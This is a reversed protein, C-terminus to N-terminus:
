GRGINTSGRMFRITWALRNQLQTIERDLQDIWSNKAKLFRDNGSIKFDSDQLINEIDLLVDRQEEAWAKVLLRALIEKIENVVLGDGKKTLPNLKTFDDNFEGVYYQEFTYQQGEPLIDPFTVVYYIIEKPKEVIQHENKDKPVEVLKDDNDNNDKDDKEIKDEPVEVLGGGFLIKDVVEENNEDDKEIIKIKKELKGQVTLQGETFMYLCKDKDLIEFDEDLIFSNTKGDSEFVEMTGVPINNNALRMGISAPNNFMGIANNLYSYMIKAFQLKNTEYAVTIKPDDFLRISKAYIDSFLIGM